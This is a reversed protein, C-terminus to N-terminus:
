TSPPCPSKRKKISRWIDEAQKEDRSFTDTATDGRQLDILVVSLDKQVIINRAHISNHLWHANHLRRLCSTLSWKVAELDKECRDVKLWNELTEGEIFEILLLPVCDYYKNFRAGIGYCWPIVSGQLDQLAKYVRHEAANLREPDEAVTWLLKFHREDWAKEVVANGKAFRVKRIQAWRGEGEMISEVLVPAVGERYYEVGSSRNAALYNFLEQDIPRTKPNDPDFTGCSSSQKGDGTTSITLPPDKLDPAIDMDFPEVVGSPKGSHYSSILKQIQDDSLNKALETWDQWLFAFLAERTFLSAHSSNLLKVKVVVENSELTEDLLLEVFVWEFQDTFIVRRTKWSFLHKVCLSAIYSLLEKMFEPSTNQAAMEKESSKIQRLISNVAIFQIAALYTGKGGDGEFKFLMTELNEAFIIQTPRKPKHPDRVVSFKENTFSYCRTLVREMVRVTDDIAQRVTDKDSERSGLKKASESMLPKCVLRFPEIIEKEFDADSWIRSHTLSLKPLHIAADEKEGNSCAGAPDWQWHESTYHPLPLKVFSELSTLESDDM